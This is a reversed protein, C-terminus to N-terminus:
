LTLARWLLIQPMRHHAGTRKGGRRLRRLMPFAFRIRNFSGVRSRVDDRPRLKTLIDRFQRARREPLARELPAGLCAACLLRCRRLILAQAPGVPVGLAL